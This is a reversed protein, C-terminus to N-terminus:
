GMNVPFVARFPNFVKLLLMSLDRSRPIYNPLIILLIQRDKTFTSM